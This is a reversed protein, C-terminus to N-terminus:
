IDKMRRAGACLMPLKGGLSESLFPLNSGLFTYKELGIWFPKNSFGFSLEPLFSAQRRGILSFLKLCHSSVIYNDTKSVQQCITFAALMLCPRTLHWYLEPSDNLLLILLVVLVLSGPLDSSDRHRLMSSRIFLAPLFHTHGWLTFCSRHRGQSPNIIYPVWCEGAGEPGSHM